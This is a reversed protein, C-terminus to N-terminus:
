PAILVICANMRGSMTLVMARPNKLLLYGSKLLGLCLRQARASLDYVKQVSKIAVVRAWLAAGPM